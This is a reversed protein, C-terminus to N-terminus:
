NKNKKGIVVFLGGDDGYKSFLMMIQLFIENIKDVLTRNELDIKDNEFDDFVKSDLDYMKVSPISCIPTINNLKFWSFVQNFTHKSEFLHEYQDQIWADISEKSKKQKRLVPDTFKLFVHGIKKPLLKYIFRRIDTRMRGYYNYLGLVIYGNKKLMKCCINFSKKANETHHLVGNSWVIDFFEEEFIEDLIDGKVFTINNIQNNQAFIQGLKLSELTPDFAVVSSNTGLAFYNSLQCTGSGVEIIKKNFGIINKINKVLYNANGKKLITSKNDNDDYNPFPKNTYFNVVKSTFQNIVEHIYINDILQLQKKFM